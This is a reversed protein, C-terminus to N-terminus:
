FIIFHTNFVFEALLQVSCLLFSVTTAVEMYTHLIHSLICYISPLTLLWAKTGMINVRGVGSTSQMARHAHRRRRRRWRIEGGHSAISIWSKVNSRSAAKMRTISSSSCCFQARTSDSSSQSAQAAAAALAAMASGGRRRTSGGRSVHTKQPTQRHPSIVIWIEIMRGM